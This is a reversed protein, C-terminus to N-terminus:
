AVNHITRWVVCIRMSGLCSWTWILATLSPGRVRLVLDPLDLQLTAQHNKEQGALKFFYSGNKHLETCLCRWFPTVVPGRFAAPQKSKFQWQLACIMVSSQRVALDRRVLNQVGLSFCAIVPSTKRTM